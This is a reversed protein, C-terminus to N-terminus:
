PSIVESIELDGLPTGVGARDMEFLEHRGELEGLPSTGLAEGLGAHELADLEPSALAGLDDAGRVRVTGEEM